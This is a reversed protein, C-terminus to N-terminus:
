QFLLIKSLSIMSKAKHFTDCRQSLPFPPCVARVCVYVSCMCVCIFVCVCCAIIWLNIKPLIRTEVVSDMDIHKSDKQTKVAVTLARAGLSGFTGKEWPCATAQSVPAGTMSSRVTGCAAGLAELLSWLCQRSCSSSSFSSLSCRRYVVAANFHFPCCKLLM